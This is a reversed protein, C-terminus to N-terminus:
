AADLAPDDEDLGDTLLGALEEDPPETPSQESDAVTDEAPRSKRLTRNRNM